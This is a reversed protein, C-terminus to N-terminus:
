AKGRRRKEMKRARAALVGDAGARGQKERRAAEAQRLHNEREARYDPCDGHCGARRRQCHRCCRIM